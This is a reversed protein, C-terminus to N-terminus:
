QENNERGKGENFDKLYNNELFSFYARDGIIIHDGLYLDMIECARKVKETVYIDEESPTPDGSPHNHILVIISANKDFAGRFIKKMSVFAANVNGQSLIVDGVFRLKVDFYACILQENRLHRIQEMYYRALIEPSDMRLTYGINARSIRKSLECVAKLQIAKVRGIGPFQILEEISYDYLNILNKHRDSLLNRAVDVSSLEKTGSKIIVALLEADSLVEPGNKVLREYPQESEPMNKITNHVKM